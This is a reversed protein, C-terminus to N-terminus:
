AVHRYSDWWLTIWRVCVHVDWSKCSCRHHTDERSQQQQLQVSSSLPKAAQGCHFHKIASFVLLPCVQWCHNVTLWRHNVRLRSHYVRRSGMHHNFVWMLAKSLNVVVVNLQRDGNTCLGCFHVRCISNYLLKEMPFVHKPHYVGPQMIVNGAVLPKCYARIDIESWVLWLIIISRGLSICTTQASIDLEYVCLSHLM